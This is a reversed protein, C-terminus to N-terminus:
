IKQDNNNNKEWHEFQNDLVELYEKVGYNVFERKDTIEGKIQNKHILIQIFEFVKEEPYEIVEAIESIASLKKQNLLFLIMKEEASGLSRYKPMISNRFIILELHLNDYRLFVKAIIQMIIYGLLVVTLWNSSPTFWKMIPLIVFNLFLIWCLLPVVFLNSDYNGSSKLIKYYTVIQGIEIIAIFMAYFLLINSLIFNRGLFSYQLSRILYLDPSFIEISNVIFAILVSLVLSNELLVLIGILIKYIGTILPEEITIVQTKEANKPFISDMNKRFILYDSSLVNQCVWIGVISSNVILWSILDDDIILFIVAMSVVLVLSLFHLPILYFKGHMQKGDYIEKIKVVYLAIFIFVVLLIFILFGLSDVLDDYVMRRYSYINSFFLNFCILMPTIAHLFFVIKKMKKSPIIWKGSLLVVDLIVILNFSIIILLRLQSFPITITQFTYPIGSFIFDVDSSQMSAAFIDLWFCAFIELFIVFTRKISKKKM